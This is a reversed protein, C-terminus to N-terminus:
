DSGVRESDHTASCAPECRTSAPVAGWWRSTLALVTCLAADVACGWWVGWHGYHIARLRQGKALVKKIADRWETGAM